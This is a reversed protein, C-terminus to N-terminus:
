NEGKTNDTTISILTSRTTTHDTSKNETRSLTRGAIIRVSRLATDKSQFLKTVGFFIM